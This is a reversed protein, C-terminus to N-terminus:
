LNINGTVVCAFRCSSTLDKHPFFFVTAVDVLLLFDLM